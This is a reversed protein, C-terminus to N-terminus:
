VPPIQVYTQESALLYASVRMGNTTRNLEVCRPLGRVTLRPIECVRSQRAVDNAPYQIKEGQSYDAVRVYQRRILYM